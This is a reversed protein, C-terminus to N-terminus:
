RIPGAAGFRYNLRVVVTQVDIDINGFQSNPVPPPADIGVHLYNYEVGLFLNPMLAYDIGVGATWGNERGGSSSIVAGTGAQNFNIDVEASAWGGKGYALWREDAYGLRGTLAFLNHVESSRSLGPVFSSQSTENFDLWSYAFEIGVVMRGWQKQWGVQLGGTFSTSSQDFNEAFLTVPDVVNSNADVSTYASGLHVGAYLGTWDFLFFGPTPAPPDYPTHRYPGDTRAPLVQAGLAWLALYAITLARQADM